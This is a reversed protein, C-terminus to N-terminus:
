LAPITGAAQMPPVQSREVTEMADVIGQHRRFLMFTLSGHCLVLAGCALVTSDDLGFVVSLFALIFDSVFTAVVFAFVTFVGDASKFWPSLYMATAIYTFIVGGGIALYLGDLFLAYMMTFLVTSAAWGIFVLKDNKWLDVKEQAESLTTPVQPVNPPVTLTEM